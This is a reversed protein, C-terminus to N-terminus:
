TLEKNVFYNLNSFYLKKNNLGENSTYDFNLM